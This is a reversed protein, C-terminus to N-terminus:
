REERLIKLREMLLEYKKKMHPTDLRTHYASMGGYHKVKETFFEIPMSHMKLNNPNDYILWETFLGGADYEIRPRNLTRDHCFWEAAQEDSMAELQDKYKFEWVPIKFYLWDDARMIQRYLYMNLVLHSPHFVPAFFFDNNPRNGGKILFGVGLDKKLNQIPDTFVKLWDGTLIENDSDLIVAIDTDCFLLLNMLADGHRQRTESVFLMIKGEGQKKCLYKRDESDEPSSDYVIIQYGGKYETRKLISEICLETAKHGCWSPILISCNKM